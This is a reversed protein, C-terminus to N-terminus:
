LSFTLMIRGIIENSDIPNGETDNIGESGDVYTFSAQIKAGYNRSLYKSLGITYYNPRNYFTANSLFSNTDPKLHTYRGDVSFGNKLLYGFQLNYGEGLMMRGKIYAEIDQVGNVDFSTSTTGDTRVRQTIDSPISATTKVYEGLISFGRYKFLFDIGYKTFDPLSEKNENNLYLIAGSEQGRRSSIGNNFSYNAGIVLKPTRERVIDPEKFQGINTFLGFPLYDIRGGIKLGGHDKNLVNAGDGNTIVFYPKIRSYSGTRLEGQAFLGFERITAFASTLRSREILQLSNSTMFLERNDTYTARQGFAINIKKTIDYSVFADMLYNGTADELESAGNLDVQLRYSFRKDSSTGDIKIRSRRMRFRNYPDKDEGNTFYKTELYPQLYGSIRFEKGDSTRFQLGEGFEYKDMKIKQSYSPLIFFIVAIITIRKLLKM